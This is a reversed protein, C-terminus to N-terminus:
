LHGSGSQSGLNPCEQYTYSRIKGEPDTTLIIWCENGSKHQIWTYEKNGDPLEATKAAPGRKAIAESIDSGLQKKLSGNLTVACGAVLLLTAIATARLM